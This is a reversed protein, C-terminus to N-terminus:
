IPSIVEESEMTFRPEPAWIPHQAAWVALALSIVADDHDGEPASYQLAGAPTMQYQYSGLESILVPIEPYTVARSQIAVSLAQILQTKRQGGLHYPYTPLGRMLLGDHLPEGLGTSDVLIASVGYKEAATQVRDMQLVYSLTNLREWAVVHPTPAGSNRSLYTDCDITTIVTFDTHKAWDVGIVYHHGPVPEELDGFICGAVGQFVGAAEDLFDALYEQAFVDGPLTLRAEEVESDEIYPSDATPFSFSAWDPQEPDEGRRFLAYAWNKGRPTGIFLASGLTDSLTARLVQEWAARAMQAFEDLVMFVVGEGRLNDYREASLFQSRCGNKWVVEMQGVASKKSAIATDFYKCCMRFAKTAQGYTPAVWWTMPTLNKKSPPNEWSKKALENVGAFTKGWRRGCVAVRFRQNSAHLTTQGPHPTYLKLRREAAKAAPPPPEAPPRSAKSTRAAGPRRITM